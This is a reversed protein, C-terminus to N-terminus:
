ACGYLEETRRADEEEDLNRALSDIDFTFTTYICMMPADNEGDYTSIDAPIIKDNPIGIYGIFTEKDMDLVANILEFSMNEQQMLYTVDDVLAMYQDDMYGYDNFFEYMDTKKEFSSKVFDALRIGVHRTIELAKM